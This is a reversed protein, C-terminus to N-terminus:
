HYHFSRLIFFRFNWCNNNALNNTIPSRAPQVAGVEVGERTVGVEVGERTVGVEVDERTVVVEVIIGIGVDVCVRSGVAV